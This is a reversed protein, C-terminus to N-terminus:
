VTRYCRKSDTFLVKSHKRTLGSYYVFNVASGADCNEMFQRFERYNFQSFSCCFGIM